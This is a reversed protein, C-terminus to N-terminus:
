KEGITKYVFYSKKTISANHPYLIFWSTYFGFPYLRALHALFAGALITGELAESIPEFGMVGM